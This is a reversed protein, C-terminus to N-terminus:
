GDERPEEPSVFGAASRRLEDLSVLQRSLEAVRQEYRIMTATMDDLRGSGAGRDAEGNDIAQDLFAADAGISRYRKTLGDMEAAVEGRIADIAGELRALRAKDTERDRAKSRVRFGLSFAM